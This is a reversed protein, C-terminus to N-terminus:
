SEMTPTSLTQDKSPDGSFAAISWDDEEQFDAGPVHLDASGATAAFVAAPLSKTQGFTRPTRRLPKIPRSSALDSATIVSTSQMQADDGKDDVGTQIGDPYEDDEDVPEVRGRKNASSRSPPPFQSYVAHLTDNSSRFIPPGNISTSRATQGQMSAPSFRHTAYGESVSRRIRSGVNQLRATLDASVLDNASTQFSAGSATRADQTLTRKSSPEDVSM